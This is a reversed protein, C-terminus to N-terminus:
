WRSNCCMALSLRLWATSSNRHRSDARRSCLRRGTWGALTAVTLAKNIALSASRGRLGLFIAAIPAVWSRAPTVHHFNSQALRRRFVYLALAAPNRNVQQLVRRSRAASYLYRDIGPHVAPVQGFVLARLDIANLDQSQRLQRTVDHVHLDVKPREQKEPIELGNYHQVVAHHDALRGVPHLPRFRLPLSRGDQRAFNEGM